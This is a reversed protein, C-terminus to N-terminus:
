LPKQRLFDRPSCNFIKSLQNLHQLNYKTQYKSSEVQGVFGTSLGLEIALDLQSWGNALRKEKVKNIVYLDIKSKM